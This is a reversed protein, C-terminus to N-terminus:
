KPPLRWDRKVDALAAPFQKDLERIAEDFLARWEPTEAEYGVCAYVIFPVQQPHPPLSM